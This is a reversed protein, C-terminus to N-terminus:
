AILGWVTTGANLWLGVDGAGGAGREGFLDLRRALSCIGILVGFLNVEGIGINFGLGRSIELDLSKTLRALGSCIPGFCPTEM